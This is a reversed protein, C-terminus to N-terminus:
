NLKRLFRYIKSIQTCALKSWLGNNYQLFFIAATCQVVIGQSGLVTMQSMLFWIIKKKEFDIRTSELLMAHALNSTKLVKICM